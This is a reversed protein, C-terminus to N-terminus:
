RSAAPVSVSVGSCIPLTSANRHLSAALPMLPTVSRTSLPWTLEATVSENGAGMTLIIIPM